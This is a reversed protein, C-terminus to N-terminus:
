FAAPGSVDSRSLPTECIGNGMGYDVRSLLLKLGGAHNRKIPADALGPRLPEYMSFIPFTRDEHGLSYMALHSAGGDSGSEPITDPLAEAIAPDAAQSLYETRRVESMFMKGNQMWPTQCFSRVQRIRPEIGRAGAALPRMLCRRLEVTGPSKKEQTQTALPTTSPAHGFGIKSANRGAQICVVTISELNGLTNAFPCRKKHLDQNGATGPVYTTCHSSQQGGPSV